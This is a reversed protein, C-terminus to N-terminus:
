QAWYAHPGAQRGAVHRACCRLVHALAQPLGGLRDHSVNQTDQRTPLTTKPRALRSSM